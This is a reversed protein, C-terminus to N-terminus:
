GMRVHTVEQFYFNRLTRDYSDYMDQNVLSTANLWTADAELETTPAVTPINSQYSENAAAYSMLSWQIEITEESVGDAACSQKFCYALTQLWPTNTAYCEPSTIGMVADDMGMDMSMDMTMDTDDEFTTCSLYLTSVAGQCSYMCFPQYLTIGMGVTGHTAMAGLFQGCLLLISLLMTNSDKICSFIEYAELSNGLAM